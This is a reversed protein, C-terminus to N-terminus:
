WLAGWAASAAVVLGAVGLWGVVRGSWTLARTVDHPEAMRGEPNLVYVGPKGLRRGLLLALAGMPWGGNPSAPRAAEARLRQWGPWRVAVGCLALATLRAPLWNLVDDARAAWQGGWRRHDRYGWMADATNAFRYLAAGPLGAIAFWFLPAVVSDSLNEALTELASERVETASLWDVPRSVLWALRRRGEDLSQGLATEVQRVEGRLMRWALLPKLLVGLLVGTAVDRWAAPLGAQVAQALGAQLGAAVAAVALAMVCWAAAGAGRARAPSLPWLRPGVAGLLRGMGVVPHWRAPPEGLLRDWALATAVAWGTVPASLALLM